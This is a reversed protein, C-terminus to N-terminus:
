SGHFSSIGQLQLMTVKIWTMFCIDWPLARPMYNIVAKHTIVVEYTVPVPTMCTCVGTRYRGSGYINRIKAVVQLGARLFCLTYIVYLLLKSHM